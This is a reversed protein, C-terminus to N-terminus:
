NGRRKYYKRRGNRRNCEPVSDSPALWILAGAGLMLISFYCAIMDGHQAIM